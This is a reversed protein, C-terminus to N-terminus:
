NTKLTRIIPTVKLEPTGQLKCAGHLLRNKKLNSRGRRRLKDQTRLIISPDFSEPSRVAVSIVTQKRASVSCSAAPSYM